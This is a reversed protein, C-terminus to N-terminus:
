EPASEEGEDPAVIYLTCGEDTRIPVHVTEPEAHCIEGVRAVVDGIRASGELVYLAEGGPIDRAPLESGPLMKVIACRLCGPGPVPLFKIEVGPVGEILEPPLRTHRLVAIGPAIPAKFPADRPAHAMSPQTVARAIPPTPADDGDTPPAPLTTTKHMVVPAPHAAPNPTLQRGWKAISSVGPNRIAPPDISIPGPPPKSAGAAQPPASSAALTAAVSSIEMVRALMERRADQSPPITRWNAM